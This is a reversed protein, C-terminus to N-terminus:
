NHFPFLKISSAALLSPPKYRFAMLLGLLTNLSIAGVAALGVYASLDLSPSAQQAAHFLFRTKARAGEM